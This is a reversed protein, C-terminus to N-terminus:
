FARAAASALIRRSAAAEFGIAELAQGFLESFSALVQIPDMGILTLDAALRQLIGITIPLAQQSVAAVSAEVSAFRTKLWREAYGLHEGEEVMVAATIPGAYADAVPLYSRYAAVAFCEVILGQIVLCAPLDGQRDRELFLGHLPAFLQRAMGVDPKVGLNRGCSVFATAHRGEMAALRELEPGDEPIARSLLRFHRDALGEGVVVMGNIRSYADLYSPSKYDLM